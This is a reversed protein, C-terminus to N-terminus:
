EEYKNTIETIKISLSKKEEFYINKQKECKELEKLKIDLERQCQSNSCDVNTTITKCISIQNSIEIRTNTLSAVENSQITLESKTRTLEEEIKDKQNKLRDYDEQLYQLKLQFDDRQYRIQISEQYDKDFKNECENKLKNIIEEPSGPTLVSIYNKNQEFVKVTKTVRTEITQSNNSSQNSGSSFGSSFESSSSQNSSQNSGSSSGSISVSKSGSSFESSSSSIRKSAGGNSSGSSFESSSSSIRKSGM